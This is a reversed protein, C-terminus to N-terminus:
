RQLIDDTPLQGSRVDLQYVSMASIYYYHPHHSLLSIDQPTAMHLSETRDIEMSNVTVVVAQMGLHASRVCGVCVNHVITLLLTWILKVSAM